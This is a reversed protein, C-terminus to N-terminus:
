REIKKKEKIPDCRNTDEHVASLVALLFEHADQQDYGQFESRFKGLARKFPRPAVARVPHKTQDTWLHRMLDATSQTLLGISFLWFTVINFCCFTRTLPIICLLANYRSYDALFFSVM